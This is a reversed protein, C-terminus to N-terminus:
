ARFARTYAAVLSEIRDRKAHFVHARRDSDVQRPAKGIAELQELGVLHKQLVSRGVNLREALQTGTAPGDILLSRLMAVRVRNGLAEIAHEVDAPLDPRVTAPV